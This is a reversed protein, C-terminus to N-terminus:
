EHLIYLYYETGYALHVISIVWDPGKMTGEPIFFTLLVNLLTMMQM